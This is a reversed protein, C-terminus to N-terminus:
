DVIHGERLELTSKLCFSFFSCMTLKQKTTFGNNSQWTIRQYPKQQSRTNAVISNSFDPSGSCDIGTVDGSVMILPVLPMMSMLM